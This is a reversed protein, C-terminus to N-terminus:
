LRFKTLDGTMEPEEHSAWFERQADTMSAFYGPHDKIRALAEEYTLEPFDRFRSLVRRERVPRKQRQVLIKDRM